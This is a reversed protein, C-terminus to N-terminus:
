FAWGLLAAGHVCAWGLLAGAIIQGQTHDSTLLRATGLLGGLIITGSILPSVALGHLASLATLSGVLGGIGVMHASIKWFFTIVLTLATALITGFLIAHLAPHAPSQRFLYYALCFHLLTLFYPALREQRTPMQLDQVLGARILLLTSTVPFAITMVALMALMVWRAQPPVFYVLPPDVYMALAVTLVPMLVPHLLYSLLQAAPRM